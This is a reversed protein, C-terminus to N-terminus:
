SRFSFREKKLCNRANKKHECGDSDQRRIKGKKTLIKGNLLEYRQEFRKPDKMNPEM